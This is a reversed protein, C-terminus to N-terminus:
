SRNLRQALLSKARDARQREEQSIQDFFRALDSDGSEEADAAYVEYMEAGQLAHYLVSVLDYTSDSTGTDQQGGAM